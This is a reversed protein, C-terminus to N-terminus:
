HSHHSGHTANGAFDHKLRGFGVSRFRLGGTFAMRRGCVHGKEKLEGPRRRAGAKLASSSLGKSKGPGKESRLDVSSPTTMGLGGVLDASGAVGLFRDFIAGAQPLNYVLMMTRDGDAGYDFGVSPEQWFVRVDRANESYLTGEGYRLGGIFAGSAEQGLIYGNSLGWQFAPRSINSNDSHAYSYRLRKDV